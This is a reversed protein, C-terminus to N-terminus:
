TISVSIVGRNNSEGCTQLLHPQAPSFGPTPNRSPRGRPHHCGDGVAEWPISVQSPPALFQLVDASFQFWFLLKFKFGPGAVHPTLTRCLAKVPRPPKLSAWPGAQSPRLCVQASDTKQGQQGNQSGPGSKSLLPRRVSTMAKGDAYHPDKPTGPDPETVEGSPSRVTDQSGM